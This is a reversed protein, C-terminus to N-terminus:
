HHHGLHLIQERLGTEYAQGAPTLVAAEPFMSRILGKRELVQWVARNSLGTADQGSVVGPGIHFHNGHAHPFSDILRGAGDPLDRGAFEALVQLLTLTKLQLPNLGLPNSKEAM